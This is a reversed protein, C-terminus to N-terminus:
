SIQGGNELKARWTKLYQYDRWIVALIIFDIVSFFALVWSHNHSFRYIQYCLFLGLVILAVPYAWLKGRLLAAVLAVKTLGYTLLYIAAFYKSNISLHNFFDVLHNAVFDTPDEQLEGATLWDVLNRLSTMTTFFLAIGGIAELTGDIGKLVVGIKFLLHIQAEKLKFKMNFLFGAPKSAGQRSPNIPNIQISNMQKGTIM